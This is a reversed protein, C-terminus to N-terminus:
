LRFLRPAGHRILCTPRRSRQMSKCACRCCEVAKGDFVCVLAALIILYAAHEAHSSVLLSRSLLAHLPPPAHLSFAGRPTPDSAYVNMATAPRLAPDQLKFGHPEYEQDFETLFSSAKSMELTDGQGVKFKKKLPKLPRATDTPSLTASGARHSPPVLQHEDDHVSVLPEPAPTESPTPLTTMPTTVESSEPGANATVETQVTAAEPTGAQDAPEEMAADLAEDSWKRREAAREAAERRAREAERERLIKERRIRNKSLQWEWRAMSQMLDAAPEGIARQILDYGQGYAFV